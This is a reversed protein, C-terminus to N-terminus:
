FQSFQVVTGDSYLQFIVSYSTLGFGVLWGVFIRLQKKTSQDRIQFSETFVDVLILTDLTFM